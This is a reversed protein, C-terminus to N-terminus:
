YAVVRVTVSMSHPYTRIKDLVGSFILNTVNVKADIGACCVISAGRRLIAAIALDLYSRDARADALTDHLTRTIIFYTIHGKTGIRTQIIVPAKTGITTINSPDTDSKAGTGFNGDVVTAVPTPINVVRKTRLTLTDIIAICLRPFLCPCGGILATILFQPPHSLGLTHRSIIAPTLPRTLRNSTSLHDKHLTFTIRHNNSFSIQRLLIREALISGTSLWRTFSKSFDVSQSLELCIGVTIQIYLHLM